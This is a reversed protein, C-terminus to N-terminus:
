NKSNHHNDKPVKHDGSSPSNVCGAVCRYLQNHRSSPGSPPALVGKPLVNFVAHSFGSYVNGYEGGHRRAVSRSGHPINFGKYYRITKLNDDLTTSFSANSSTIAITYLLLFFLMLTSLTALLPNSAM